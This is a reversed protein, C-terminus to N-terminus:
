GLAAQGAVIEAHLAPHSAALRALVAGIPTGYNEQSIPVGWVQLPDGEITAWGRHLAAVFWKDDCIPSGSSGGATDTLYSLREATGTVVFNNRFGLRMPRGDPHQLVNVRDRLARDRPRMVPQTRLRLPPRDPADDPLRLLAFDLAADSAACEVSKCLLLPSEPALYDFRAHVNRGQLAFDAESAAPEGVTRANVVHHNTILLGPAIMWGTGSGLDPENGALTSPTGDFHRHVLLKCISRAAEVGRTLFDVELTDDEAVAVELGGGATPVSAADPGATMGAAGGHDPAVADVSMAALAQRFVMSEPRGSSMRIAQELLLSMPVEGSPRVRTQNLRTALRTLKAPGPGRGMAPRAFGPELPATLTELREAAGWGLDTMADVVRRLTDDDLHRFEM